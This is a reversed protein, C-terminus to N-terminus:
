KPKAKKLKDFLSVYGDTFINENLKDCVYGNSILYEVFGDGKEKLYISDGEDKVYGMSVFVKYISEAGMATSGSGPNSKSHGETEFYQGKKIRGGVNKLGILAILTGDKGAYSITNMVTEYEDRYITSYDALIYDLTESLNKKLNENGKISDDYHIIRFHAIDFPMEKYEDHTLIITQSQKLQHAIGLEYFVNPKKGSIDVVIVQANQIEQVIDDYVPNNTFIEDAKRIEIEKQKFIPKVCYEYSQRVTDDSFPMVMFARKM